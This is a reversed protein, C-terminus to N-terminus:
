DGDIHLESSSTSACLTALALIPELYTPHADGALGQVEAAFQEMDASRLVTSGYLDLRTIMPLRTSTRALERERDVASEFARDEDVYFGLRQLSRRRTRKDRPGYILLQLDLGM